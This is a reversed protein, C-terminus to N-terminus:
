LGPQPPTDAEKLARKLARSVLVFAFGSTLFNLGVILGIFFAATGPLGAALLLGLVMSVGASVLMWRWGYRPRLELALVTEAAGNVLFLVALLLTLAIMGAAPNAILWVGAAFTLLAVLFASFFPGAGHLQMGAVLLVGGALIFLWGLAVTTVLTTLTPFLIALIGIIILAIGVWFLRGAGAKLRDLFARDGQIELHAASM